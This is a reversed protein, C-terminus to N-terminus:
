YITQCTKNHAYIGVLCAMRTINEWARYPKTCSADTQHKECCGAMGSFRQRVGGLMHKRMFAQLKQMNEREERLVGIAEVWAHLAKAVGALMHKKVFARLRSITSAWEAWALFVRM